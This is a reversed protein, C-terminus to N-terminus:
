AGCGSLVCLECLILGQTYGPYIQPATTRARSVLRGPIESRAQHADLPRQQTSPIYALCVHPAPPAPTPIRRPSQQSPNNRPLLPRIRIRPNLHPHQRNPKTLKSLRKKPIPLPPVKREGQELDQLTVTVPTPPSTEDHTTNNTTMASSTKIDQAFLM